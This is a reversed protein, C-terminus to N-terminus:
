AATVDCPWRAAVASAIAANSCYRSSTASSRARSARPFRWCASLRASLSPRTRASRRSESSSLNALSVSAATFLAKASAVRRSCRVHVHTMALRPMATTKARTPLPSTAKRSVRDNRLSDTAVRASASPDNLAGMVTWSLSSTPSSARENLAMAWCNRWISSIFSSNKAVIECSRLDGRPEMASAAYRSRSPTAPERLGRWARSIDMMLALLSRM